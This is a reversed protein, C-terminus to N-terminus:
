RAKGDALMRRRAYTQEWDVNSTGAKMVFMRELKESDSHTRGVTIAEALARYDTTPAPQKNGSASADAARSAAHDRESLNTEAKPMFGRGDDTHQRPDTARPAPVFHLGRTGALNSVALDFNRQIFDRGLLWSIVKAANEFGKDGNIVINKQSFWWSGFKHQDVKSLSGYLKGYEVEATSQWRLQDEMLQFAQLATEITVPTRSNHEFYATMREANIQADDGETALVKGQARLQKEAADFAQIESETFQRQM